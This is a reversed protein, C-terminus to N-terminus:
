LKREYIKRLEEIHKLGTWGNKVYVTIVDILKKTM